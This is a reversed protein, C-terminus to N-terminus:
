VYFNLNEIKKSSGEILHNQIHKNLTKNQIMNGQALVSKIGKLQNMAFDVIKSATM